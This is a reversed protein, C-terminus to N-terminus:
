TYTCYGGTAVIQGNQVVYHNGVYMYDSGAPSSGYAWWYYQIATRYYGPGFDTFFQTQNQPQSAQYDVVWVAQSWPHAVIAQWAAGNWQFLVARWSFPQVDTGTTANIAYASPAVVGLTSVDGCLAGNDWHWAPTARSYAMAGGALTGALVAAATTAALIRRARLLLRM